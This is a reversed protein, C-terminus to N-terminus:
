ELVNIEDLGHLPQFALCPFVSTLVIIIIIIIIIIIWWHYEFYLSFCTVSVFFKIFSFTNFQSSFWIYNLVCRHHYTNELGLLLCFEFCWLVHMSVNVLILFIYWHEHLRLISNYIKIGAADSCRGVTCQLFLFIIILWTCITRKIITIVCCNYWSQVKWSLKLHGTSTIYSINWACLGFASWGM